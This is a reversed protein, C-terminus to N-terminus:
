FSATKPTRGFLSYCLAGLTGFFFILLAWGVRSNSIADVLMWFWFVTALISMTFLALVFFTSPAEMNPGSWYLALCGLFALTSVVGFFVLLGGSGRRRTPPATAVMANWGYGGQTPPPAPPLDELDVGVPVAPLEMPAGCNMCRSIGAHNVSRCVPCSKTEAM